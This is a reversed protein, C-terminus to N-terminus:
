YHAAMALVLHAAMALVPNMAVALLLYPRNRQRRCSVKGQNLSYAQLLVRGPLVWLPVVRPSVCQDRPRPDRAAVVPPMLHVTVVVVQALFHQPLLFPM